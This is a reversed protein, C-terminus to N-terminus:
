KSLRLCEFLYIEYFDRKCNCSPMAAIWQIWCLLQRPPFQRKHNKNKIIWILPLPNSKIHAAIMTPQCAVRNTLHNGLNTSVWTPSLVFAHDMLNSSAEFGYFLLISIYLLLWDIETISFIWGLSIWINM